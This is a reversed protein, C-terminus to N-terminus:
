IKNTNSKKIHYKLTLFDGWFLGLTFSLFLTIVLVTIIQSKVFCYVMVEIRNEVGTADFVSSKFLTFIVLYIATLILGSLILLQYKKFM